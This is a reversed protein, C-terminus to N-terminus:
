PHYLNEEANALHAGYEMNAARCNTIQQGARLDPYPVVVCGHQGQARAQIDQHARCQDERFAEDDDALDEIADMDDHEDQEAVPPEWEPEFNWGEDDVDEDESGGSQEQAWQALEDEPEDEEYGGDLDLDPWTSEDPEFQPESTPVQSRSQHYLARCHPNRSKALHQSLGTVTFNDRSCAPCRTSM